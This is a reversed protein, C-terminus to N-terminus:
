RWQGAMRQAEARLQLEVEWGENRIRCDLYALFRAVSFFAAVIWMSAPVGIRTLFPGWQFSNEVIWSLVGFFGVCSITLVVALAASGFWRVVLDGTTSFHLTVMRRWLTVDTPNGTRIPTRELLIVENLFPRVARLVMAYLVVTTLTLHIMIIWVENDHPMALLFVIPLFAARWVGHCILWRPALVLADHVTQRWGPVEMFIARGLYLTTFVSALPAQLFVLIAMIYTFQAYGVGDYEFDGLWDVLAGKLLADNLLALPLAGLGFTIVIPRWFEKLVHLALDFIELLSRERITVRTEDLQM